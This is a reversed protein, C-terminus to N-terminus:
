DHEPQDFRRLCHSYHDLLTHKFRDWPKQNWLHWSFVLAPRDGLETGRLYEPTVGARNIDISNRVTDPTSLKVDPSQIFFCDEPGADPFTTPVRFGFVGDKATYMEPFRHNTTYVIHLNTGQVTENTIKFEYGSKRSLEVIAEKLDNSIDM